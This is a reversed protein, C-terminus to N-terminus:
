VMTARHARGSFPFANMDPSPAAMQERTRSLCAGWKPAVITTHKNMAALFENDQTQLDAVM